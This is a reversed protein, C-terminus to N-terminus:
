PSGRSVHCLRCANAISALSNPGLRPSMSDRDSDGDRISADGRVSQRDVVREAAGSASAAHHCTSCCQARLAALSDQSNLRLVNRRCADPIAFRSEHPQHIEHNAQEEHGAENGSVSPIALPRATAGLMAVILMVTAGMWLLLAATRSMAFAHLWPWRDVVPPALSSQAPAEAVLTQCREGFGDGPNGYRPLDNLEFLSVSEHFLSSAPRLAEAIQRCSDCTELHCEVSTDTSDGSPFPGRTLIAFVQDCDIPAPMTCRTGFPKRFRLPVPPSSCKWSAVRTEATALATKKMNM